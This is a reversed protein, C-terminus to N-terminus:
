IIGFSIYNSVNIAYLVKLKGFKTDVKAIIWIQWGTQFNLEYILKRGTYYINFQRMSIYTEILVTILFRPSSVCQTRGFFFNNTIKTPENIVIHM